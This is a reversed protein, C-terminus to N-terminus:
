KKKNQKCLVKHFKWDMKQCTLSCYYVLGCASCMRPAPQVCKECENKGRPHSKRVKIALDVSGYTEVNSRLAYIEEENTVKANYEILNNIMGMSHEKNFMHFLFALPRLCSRSESNPNAGHKLLVKVMAANKYHTACHLPTYGYIDHARVDAGLKILKELIMVHKNENNGSYMLRIKKKEEKTFTPDIDLNVLKLGLIPAFIPNFQCFGERKKMAMCLQEATLSKVHAEFETYNGFFMDIFFSSYYQLHGFPNKRSGPLDIGSAFVYHMFYREENSCDGESLKPNEYSEKPPNERLFKVLEIAKAESKDGRIIKDVKNVFAFIEPDPMNEPPHELASLTFPPRELGMETRAIYDLKSYFEKFTSSKLSSAHLYGEYPNMM